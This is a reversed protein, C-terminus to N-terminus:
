KRIESDPVLFAALLGPDEQRILTEVQYPILPREIKGIGDNCDHLIGMERLMAFLVRRVKGETVASLRTIEPHVIRKEELFRRYDSERLTLDHLELKSRLLDAAFEYLFASHKVAALWSLCIRSQSDSHAIEHLQEHTMRQLRQRIERELRQSSAASRCQLANTKLVIEKAEEWSGSRLFIEAVASM